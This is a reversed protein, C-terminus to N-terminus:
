TLHHPFRTCMAVASQFRVDKKGIGGPPTFYVCMEIESRERDQDKTTIFSTYMYDLNREVRGRENMGKAALGVRVNRVVTRHSSRYRRVWCRVKDSLEKARGVGAEGETAKVLNTKELWRYLGGINETGIAQINTKKEPEARQIALLVTRLLNTTLILAFLNRLTTSRAWCRIRLLGAM